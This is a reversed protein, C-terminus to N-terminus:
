KGKKKDLANMIDEKEKGKLRISGEKEVFELRGEKELDMERKVNKLNYPSIHKHSGKNDCTCPTNFCGLCERDFNIDNRKYSSPETGFDFMIQIDKMQIFKEKKNELADLIRKRTNNLNRPQIYRSCGWYDFIEFVESIGCIQIANKINQASSSPTFICGVEREKGDEVAIIKIEKENKLEFKIEM